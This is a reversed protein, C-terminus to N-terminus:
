APNKIHLDDILNLGPLSLSYSKPTLSVQMDRL